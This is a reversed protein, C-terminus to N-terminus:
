DKMNIVAAKLLPFKEGTCIGGFDDLTLDVIAIGALKKARFRLKSYM